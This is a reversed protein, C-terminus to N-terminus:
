CRSYLCASRLLLCMSSYVRKRVQFEVDACCRCTCCPGRIKLVTEHAENCITFEPIWFTCSCFILYLKYRTRQQIKLIFGSILDLRKLISKVSTYIFSLAVKLHQICAQNRLIAQILLGYEHACAILIM